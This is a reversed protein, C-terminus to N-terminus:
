LRSPNESDNGTTVTEKTKKNKMKRVIFVILWTLLAIVAIGAAVIMAWVLIYLGLLFAILEEM